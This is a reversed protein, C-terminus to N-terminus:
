METSRYGAPKSGGEGFLFKELEAKLYERAGPDLMNLRYENILLTQHNLWAQWAPKSIQKLIREGLHGPFPAAALAEASRKLKHCYIEVM